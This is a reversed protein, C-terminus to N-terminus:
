QTQKYKELRDLATQIDKHPTKQRKKTIAHLLVVLRDGVQALFIRHQRAGFKIRLEWLEKTGQMRKLHKGPLRLGFERLLKITRYIKTSVKQPQQDIYEEVPSRGSNTVFFDINIM